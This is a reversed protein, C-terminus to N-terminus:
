ANQIGYRELVIECHHLNHGILIFGIEKASLQFDGVQGKFNLANESLRKFLMITTDRVLKYEELLQAISLHAINANSVYANEDFRAVSTNDLKSFRFARYAMLRESDVLHSLVEKITWKGEAYAYNEKDSPINSFITHTFEKSRNLESIINESKLKRLFNHYYDPTSEFYQTSIM